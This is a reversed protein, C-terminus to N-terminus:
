AGMSLRSGGNLFGVGGGGGVILVGVTSGFFVGSLLSDADLPSDEGGRLLLNDIPLAMNEAVPRKNPSPLFFSECFSGSSKVESVGCLTGMSETGGVVEVDLELVEVGLLWVAGVVGLLPMVMGELVRGMESAVSLGTAMDCIYSRFPDRSFRKTLSAWCFLPSLTSLSRLKQPCWLPVSLLPFAISIRPSLHLFNLTPLSLHDERAAASM